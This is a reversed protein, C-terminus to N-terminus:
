KSKEKYRCYAKYTKFRPLMSIQDEARKLFGAAQELYGQILYDDFFEHAPPIVTRAGKIRRLLFNRKQAWIQAKTHITM